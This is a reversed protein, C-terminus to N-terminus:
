LFDIAFQLEDKVESMGAVRDFTIGEQITACRIYSRTMTGVSSLLYYIFVAMFAYIPLQVLMSQIADSVTQQAINVEIGLDMIDKRYTDHRPNPVSLKEGDTTTVVFYNSSTYIDVSKVKGDTAMSMFETYKMDTVDPTSAQMVTIFLVWILAVIAM